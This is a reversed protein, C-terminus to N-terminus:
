NDKRVKNALEGRQLELHLSELPPKVIQCDAEEKNFQREFQRAQSITKIVIDKAQYDILLKHPYGWQYPVGYTILKM